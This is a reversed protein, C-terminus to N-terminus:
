RAAARLLWDRVAETQPALPLHNSWVLHFGAGTAWTSGPLRHLLSQSVLDGCIHEWGLAFGQGAMAAQLVLAYDNLRLGSGDDHWAAGHGAFLEAWGPRYRHPEDLHILPLTRLSAVDATTGQDAVLRASGVV